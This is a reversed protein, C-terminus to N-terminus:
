AAVAEAVMEVPVVQLTTVTPREPDLEKEVVMEMTEVAVVPVVVAPMLTASVVLV